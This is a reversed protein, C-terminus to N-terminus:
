EDLQEIGQQYLARVEGRTLPRDWVQFQDVAAKLFRSAGKDGGRAGIHLDGDGPQADKGLRDGGIKNGDLYVVTEGKDHEHTVALHHWQNDGLDLSGAGPKSGARFAFYLDGNDFHSLQYLDDNPKNFWSNKEFIISEGNVPEPLKVWLSLTASHSALEIADHDPVVVYGAEGDLRLAKGVVGDILDPEGGMFKADPGGAAKLPIAGGDADGVSEADFTLTYVPDDEPLKVEEPKVIQADRWALLKPDEAPVVTDDGKGPATGEVPQFVIRGEDNLRVTQNGIRGHDFEGKGPGKGTPVVEPFEGDSSIMIISLRTYGALKVEPYIYANKYRNLPDVRLDPRATTAIIADVGAQGSFDVAFQEKGNTFHGYQEDADWTMKPEGGVMTGLQIAEGGGYVLIPNFSTDQKRGIWGTPGTKTWATVITDNKDQWRNRFAAYGHVSDFRAQPLVENPNTAQGGEPWNVLALVAHHPYTADFSGEPAGEGKTAEKVFIEYSWLLAPAMEAPVAGMGQSYWGSHTMGQLDTGHLVEPHGYSNGKFPRVPYVPEGQRAVIEHPWRMTIWYANPVHTVDEGGAVKLAQLFPVFASNSAVHSPGPGEAFYGADGFGETMNKIANAKIIPLAQQVFAEDSGPDGMTALVALGSGGIQAGWHNSTSMHRPKFVLRRLNVDNGEQDSTFRAGEDGGVGQIKKLVMQRYEEPWADYNLDYAAAVWGVVPGERLQGGAGVWAYRDDKDRQGAFLKDLSERALDAYKQEGTLQYLMGYGVPHSITFAGPERFIRRADPDYPQTARSYVTPLSEGDSGNLLYRLRAVIAKGEPTKAKERLAPLDAERFFLRPHEGAEPPEYGEVPQAWKEFTATGKDGQAAVPSAPTVLAFAVIAFTLLLRPIM